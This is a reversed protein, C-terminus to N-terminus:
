IRKDYLNESDKYAMLIALLDREDKINQIDLKSLIDEMSERTSTGKVEIPKFDDKKNDLITHNEKIAKLRKCESIFDKVSINKDCLLKLIDSDNINNLSEDIYENNIKFDKLFERLEKKDEPNFFDSFARQYINSVKYEQIVRLKLNLKTKLNGLNTGDDVFTEDFDSFASNYILDSMQNINYKLDKLAESYDSNLNKLAEKITYAKKPLYDDRIFTNNLDNLLNEDLNLNKIYQERVSGITSQNREKVNYNIIAERKLINYFHNYNTIQM